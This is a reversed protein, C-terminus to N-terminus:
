EGRDIAPELFAEVRNIQLLGFGQEVRQRSNSNIKLTLVSLPSPRVTGGKSIARASSTMSYAANTRLLKQVQERGNM